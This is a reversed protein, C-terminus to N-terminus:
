VHGVPFYDNFVCFLHFCHIFKFLHHLFYFSRRWCLQVLIHLFVFAYTGARLTRGMSGTGLIGFLIKKTQNSLTEHANGLLLYADARGAGEGLLKAQLVAGEAHLSRLFGLAIFM